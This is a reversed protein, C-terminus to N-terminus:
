YVERLLLRGSQDVFIKDFREILGDRENLVKIKEQKVKNQKEEQDDAYFEDLANEIKTNM